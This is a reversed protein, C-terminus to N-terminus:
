NTKLDTLKFEKFVGNNKTQSTEYVLTAKLPKNEDLKKFKQEFPITLRNNAQEWKPMLFKLNDDGTIFADIEKIKEHYPNYSITLEKKTLDKKIEVIKVNSIENAKPIQALWMELLKLGQENSYNQPIIHKFPAEEFLCIENCIAFKAKFSFDVQPKKNEGEELKISFPFIVQKKYGFSQVVEFDIFRKPSPFLIKSEKVQEKKSPEIVIGIGADGPNEWYTKWKDAMKLEIGGLIEKDTRSVIFSRIKYEDKEIWKSFLEEALLNSPLLFLILLFIKFNM